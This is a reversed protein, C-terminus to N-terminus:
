YDISERAFIGKEYPHKICKMETAYDAMELIDEHAYRGTLILETEIPKNSILEKVDDINILGYFLAGNIEDLIVIDYEKSSLIEKAKEVAIITSDKAETVSKKTVNRSKSEKIQILTLNPNDKAFFAEGINCYGKIFQIICVKRNWGIARLAIGLSASTKGKGEGTYVHILGKKEM